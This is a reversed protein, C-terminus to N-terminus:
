DDAHSSVGCLFRNLAMRYTIPSSFAFMTLPCVEFLLVDVNNKNMASIVISAGPAALLKEFLEPRVDTASIEIGADQDIWFYFRVFFLFL